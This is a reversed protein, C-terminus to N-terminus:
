TAPASRSNNKSAKHNRTAMKAEPPREEFYRKWMRPWGIEPSVKRRRPWSCAVVCGRGNPCVYWFCRSLCCHSHRELVILVLVQPRILYIANIICRIIISHFSIIIIIILISFNIHFFSNTLFNSVSKSAHKFLFFFKSWHMNHWGCRGWAEWSSV